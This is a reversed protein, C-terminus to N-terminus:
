LFAGSPVFPAFGGVDGGLFLPGDAGAVELGAELLVPLAWRQAATLYNVEFEGEAQALVGRLVTAASEDDLAALTRLEGTGFVAYGREPLVLMKQGMDLLTEISWRRGGGRAFRDVVETLPVDALGGERLEAPMTLGRPTGSGRYVPHLDLGLRAYSRVARPDASALIIRGTADHAYDHARRLLGSGIGGSQVGPRVVLLSLGWIGERKTALACGALGQEDEAVWSGEPDHRVFATFRKEVAAMDSPPPEPERGRRRDYDEFAEIMLDLASRTDDLTMPRIVPM